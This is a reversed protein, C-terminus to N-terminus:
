ETSPTHTHTYLPVGGRYLARPRRKKPRYRRVQAEQQGRLCDGGDMPEAVLKPWRRVRRSIRISLDLDRGSQREPFNYPFIPTKASSGGLFDDGM